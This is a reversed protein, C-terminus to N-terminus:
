GLQCPTVQRIDLCIRRIIYYTTGNHASIVEPQEKQGKRVVTFFGLITV